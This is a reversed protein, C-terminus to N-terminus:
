RWRRSRSAQRVAGARQLRALEKLHAEVRDFGRVREYFARARAADARAAKPSSGAEAAARQRYADGQEEIERRGLTAGLKQAESFEAMADDVIPLAYVYVRALALHPEASQPMKAAATRFEDRVYLRLQAAAEDSYRGGELRQLTAYGKSLALEGVTGDDAAGLQVARELYVEAKQWDFDHLSADASTRYSDLIARADRAYLMRIEEDRSSAAKAPATPPSVKPAAAVKLAAKAVATKAHWQQWAISGGIWLVMGAAFWGTAGAIQIAKRAQAITRTAKRLCERAAEITANPNWGPKREMEALTPKRELFAQLDAQFEVASRYRQQPEPALAKSVIWRLAKPCGAPLARPPRKSRILSELKRTSDAQFPPQGSLMEYLTAGVAWLDSQQDVASRMLREPSCYSPSGFQHATDDADARLTKAIGFDLLRVTDNPGLHVNSPKIDGHVVTAQWAHFKALQECVELAIVAARNPDIVSETRLVESLSRGEVYQMAVFFYGDQDGVDYVEVMRPDVLQLEKQIAAGRREAEMVLQSAANGGTPVLKLAAKRNEVTDIALYVDTMSKGIQRVIEYRGIKTPASM